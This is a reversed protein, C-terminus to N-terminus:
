NCKIESDGKRGEWGVERRRKRERECARACVCVCVCVCVFGVVCVAIHDM